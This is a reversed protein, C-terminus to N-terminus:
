AAEELERAALLYDMLRTGIWEACPTAVGNGITRYRKSDQGLPLLPDDATGIGASMAIPMKDRRGGEPGPALLTGAVLTTAPTDGVDFSNLTPSVHDARWSEDDDVSQARKGKVFARDHPRGALGDPAGGGGPHHTQRDVVIQQPTGGGQARFASITDGADWWGQGTSSAVITNSSKYDRAGLTQGVDAPGAWEGFATTSNFASGAGRGARGAAAAWAEREQAHDRGCRTGVALVQGPGDPDPYRGSDLAVLFVRRRRQPVGFWQADCIRYAWWYGLEGLTRLLAYWDLGHASSLIGPVNEFLLAGPRYRGVLDLWTVALSSRHDGLGRRQGAVSFGQCPPGGAWVDARTWDVASGPGDGRGHAGRARADHRPRAADPHDARGADGLASIDGLNPVDPWHRALVACAHPEIESHSVIRFGARELGM